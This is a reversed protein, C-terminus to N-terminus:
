GGREVMGESHLGCDVEWLRELGVGDEGVGVVVVWLAHLVLRDSMRNLSVTEPVGGACCGGRDVAAGEEGRLAGAACAREELLEVALVVDVAHVM